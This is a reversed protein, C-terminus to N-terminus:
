YRLVYGVTVLCFQLKCKRELGTEPKTTMILNAENYEM